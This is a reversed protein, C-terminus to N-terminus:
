IWVSFLHELNPQTERRLFKFRHQKLMNNVRTFSDRIPIFIPQYHLNDLLWRIIFEPEQHYPSHKYVSYIVMSVYRPDLSVNKLKLGLDLMKFLSMGAFLNMIAAEIAQLRDALTDMHDLLAVIMNPRAYEIATAIVAANPKYGRAFAVMLHGPAGRRLCTEVYKTMNIDIVDFLADATEHPIKVLIKTHRLDNFHYGLVLSFEVGPISSKGLYYGMLDIDCPVSMPRKLQCFLRCTLKVAAILEPENNVAYNLIIDVIENPLTNM